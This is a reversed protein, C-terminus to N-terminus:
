QKEYFYNWTEMWVTIMAKESEPITDVHKENHKITSMTLLSKVATSYKTYDFFDNSKVATVDINRLKEWKIKEIKIDIFGLQSLTIRFKEDYWGDAHYAWSAEHSGFLHRMVQQKTTHSRFPSIMMKFCAMADPTVIRLKGGPVLWKRWRCLLALAVPRSFHEFVHHLRIEEISNDDYNLDCIDTYVDATLDTQITHESEPFDINIYGDLYERGCGLHLKTM